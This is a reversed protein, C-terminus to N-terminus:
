AAYKASTMDAFVRVLALMPRGRKGYEVRVQFHVYQRYSTFSEDVWIPQADDTMGIHSGCAGVSYFLHSKGDAIKNWDASAVTRMVYCIDHRFDNRYSEVHRNFEAEMQDLLNHLDLLPTIDKKM